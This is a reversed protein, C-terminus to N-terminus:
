LARQNEGPLRGSQQQELSEVGDVQGPSETRARVDDAARFVHEIGVYRQENAQEAQKVHGSRRQQQPGDPAQTVIASSPEVLRQGSPHHNGDIIEPTRLEVYVPSPAGEEM